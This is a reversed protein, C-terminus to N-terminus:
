LYAGVAALTMMVVFLVGGTIWAIKKDGAPYLGAVAAALMGSCILSFLIALIM